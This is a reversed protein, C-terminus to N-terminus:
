GGLSIADISGMEKEWCLVNATTRPLHVLDTNLCNFDQGEASM